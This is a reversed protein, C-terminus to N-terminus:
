RITVFDNHNLLVHVLNERARLHPQTAPPVSGAQGGGFAVLQEPKSLQQTQGALFEECAAHEETTPQRSLLQVFAAAVFAANAEPVPEMGAEQSLQSALLRSQALSLPSNVLALAQQPVVSENRRYCENVSAADFLMLFEMQKEHAHRFYVSRRRSTQGASQDLEPGGMTLDLQGAVHLVSDRVIEAEMRRSRMRWLWRNDRDIALNPDDPATAWSAMRYAASTVMLRHMAKM